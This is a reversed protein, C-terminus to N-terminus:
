WIRFSPNRRKRGYLTPFRVALLIGWRRCRRRCLRLRLVLVLGVVGIDFQLGVGEGYGMWCRRAFWGAKM